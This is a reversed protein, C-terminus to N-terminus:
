LQMRIIHQEHANSHLPAEYDITQGQAAKEKKSDCNCFNKPTM